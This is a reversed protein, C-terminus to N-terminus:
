MMPLTRLVFGFCSTILTPLFVLLATVLFLLTFPLFQIVIVPLLCWTLNNACHRTDNYWLPTNPNISYHLGSVSIRKSHFHFETETYFDGSVSFTVLRQLFWVSFFLFRIKMEQHKKTCVYEHVMTSTSVLDKLLLDWYM